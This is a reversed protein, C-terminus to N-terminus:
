KETRKYERKFLKEVNLALVDDRTSRFKAKAEDSVGIDGIDGALNELKRVGKALFGTKVPTDEPEAAKKYVIRIPLRDNMPRPRPQEGMVGGALDQRHEVRDKSGSDVEGSDQGESETGPVNVQGVAPHIGAGGPANTTPTVASVLAAPPSGTNFPEKRAAVPNGTDPTDAPGAVSEQVNEVTDDVYMDFANSIRNEQDKHLRGGYFVLLAVGFLLVAAAIGAYKWVPGKHSTELRSELRSWLQEDPEVPNSHLAKRFFADLKNKEM